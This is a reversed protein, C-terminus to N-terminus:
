WINSDVPGKTPPVPPTGQPHGFGSKINQHFFIKGGKHYGCQRIYKKVSVSYGESTRDVSLPFLACGAPRRGYKLCRGNELNICPIRAQAKFTGSLDTNCCDSCRTCLFKMSLSKPNFKLKALEVKRPPTQLTLADSPENM